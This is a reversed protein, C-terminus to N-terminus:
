SGFAGKSPYWFEVTMSAGPPDQTCRRTARGHLKILQGQPAQEIHFIEFQGEFPNCTTARVVVTLGNNPITLATVAKADLYLGPSLRDTGPAKMQVRLDSPFPGSGGSQARLEVITWGFNTMPSSAQHTDTTLVGAQGMLHSEQETSTFLMIANNGAQPPPAGAQKINLPITVITGQVTREQTGSHAGVSVRIFASGTGEIPDFRLYPFPKLPASAFWSCTPTTTLALDFSAGAAPVLAPLNSVSLSYTCSGHTVTLPPALTPSTPVKGKCSSGLGACILLGAVWFASLRYRLM